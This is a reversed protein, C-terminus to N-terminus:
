VGKDQQNTKYAEYKECIKEKIDVYYADNFRTSIGCEGCEDDFISLVTGCEECELAIGVLENEFDSLEKAVYAM